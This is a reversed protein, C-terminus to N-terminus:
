RVSRLREVSSSLEAYRCPTALLGVRALSLSRTTPLNAAPVAYFLWQSPDRHDATEGTVPHDAFLYLHAYRGPDEIWSAGEWRGKRPAIDFRRRGASQPAEWTQQAASQKVELRTGDEHIFDCAAWDASCWRWDMPLALDVMAEVVVARLNNQVLRQGFATLSAHRM